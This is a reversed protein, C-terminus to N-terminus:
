KIGMVSAWFANRQSVFINEVVFVIHFMPMLWTCTTVQLYLDATSPFDMCDEYIEDKGRWPCEFKWEAVPPTLSDSDIFQHM